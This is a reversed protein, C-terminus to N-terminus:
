RAAEMSAPLPATMRIMLVPVSAARLVAEAVSGFLARRVGTLGHTTMAILDAKEARATEGIETAPTGLGLVTRVRLGRAELRHAVDALYKKAELQRLFLADPGVVGGAGLAAVASVPEVVRVLCVEAGAPGAIREVFPLIEEAGASGDLPVLIREYM